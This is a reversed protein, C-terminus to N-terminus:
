LSALAECESLIHASTEDEEGRMRCLSRDSLGMLRRHRRLTLLGIVARSQTRNFPCLGLRPTGSLIGLNIRSDTTPYKWSRAVM